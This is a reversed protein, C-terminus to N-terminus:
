AQFHVNRQNKPQNNRSSNRDADDVPRKRLSERIFNNVEDINNMSKMSSKEVVVKCEQTKLKPHNLSVTESDPFYDPPVSYARM